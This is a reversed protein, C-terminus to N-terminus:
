LSQNIDKAWIISDEGFVLNAKQCLSFDGSVFITEDPRMVKDFWYASALNYIGPSDEELGTVNDLQEIWNRKSVIIIAHQYNRLKVEISDAVRPSRKQCEDLVSTSTVIVKEARIFNDLLNELAWDDFFYADNM